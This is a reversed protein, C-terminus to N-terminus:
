KQLDELSAAYRGPGDESRSSRTPSTTSTSSVTSASAEDACRRDDDTSGPTLEPAPADLVGEQAPPDVLEAFTEADISEAWRLFLLNITSKHPRNRRKVPSPPIDSTYYKRRCSRRNHYAPWYTGSTTPLRGHNPTSEHVLKANIQCPCPGEAGPLGSRARSVM